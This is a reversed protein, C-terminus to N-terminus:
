CTKASHLWLAAAVIPIQHDICGLGVSDFMAALSYGLVMIFRSSLAAAVFRSQSTRLPVGVTWVLSALDLKEVTAVDPTKANSTGGLVYLVGNLAVAAANRRATEMPPLAQWKCTAPNFKEVMATYQGDREGGIVYLFIGNTEAIAYGTRKRDDPLNLPCWKLSRLNLGYLGCSIDNDFTVVVKAEKPYQIGAAIWVSRVQLSLAHLCNKHGILGAIKQLLDTTSFVMHFVVSGM